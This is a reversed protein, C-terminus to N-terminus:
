RYISQSAQESCVRAKRLPSLGSVELRLHGNVISLRRIKVAQAVNEYDLDVHQSCVPRSPLCTQHMRVLSLAHFDTPLERTALSLQHFISTCYHLKCRARDHM